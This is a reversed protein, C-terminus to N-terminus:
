NKCFFITMGMYTGLRNFRHFLHSMCKEGSFHLLLNCPSMVDALTIMHM